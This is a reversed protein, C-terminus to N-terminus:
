GYKEAIEDFISNLEKEPDYFEEEPVIVEPKKYYENWLELPDAIRGVKEQMEGIKTDGMFHKFFYSGPEKFTGIGAGLNNLDVEVKSRDDSNHYVKYNGEVWLFFQRELETSDVKMDEGLLQDKWERFFGSSFLILANVTEQSPLLIIRKKGQGDLYSLWCCTKIETIGKRVKSWLIVNYLNGKSKIEVLKKMRQWEGPKKKQLACLERKNREVIRFCRPNIVEHYDKWFESLIERQNM